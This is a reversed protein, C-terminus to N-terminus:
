TGFRKYHTTITENDPEVEAAHQATSKARAMDGLAGEVLSLAYYIRGSKVGIRILDKIFVRAELYKQLKILISVFNLLITDNNPWIETAIKALKLAQERDQGDFLKLSRLYIMISQEQVAPSPTRDLSALNPFIEIDTLLNAFNQVIDDRDPSMLHAKFFYPVAEDAKGSEKCLQVVELLVPLHDHRRDLFQGYVTILEENKGDRKLLAVLNWLCNENTCDAQFAKRAWELAIMRHDKAQAILSLIFLTSAQDIESEVAKRLLVEAEAIRGLRYLVTACQDIYSINLPALKVAQQSPILAKENDGTLEAIISKCYHIQAWEGSDPVSAEGLCENLLKDAAAVGEFKLLLALAHSLITPEGPYMEVAILAVGLASVQEVKSGDHSLQHHFRVQSETYHWWASFEREMKLTNAVGRTGAHVSSLSILDNERLFALTGELDLLFPGEVPKSELEHERMAKFYTADARVLDDLIYYGRYGLGRCLHVIRRGDPAFLGLHMASGQLGLLVNDERFLAAQEYAPLTEPFVVEWGDRLLSEELEQEGITRAITTNKRSLFIKRRGPMRPVAASQFIRRYSSTVYHHYVFAVEPVILEEVQCWDTIFLVQDKSLGFLSLFERQYNRIQREPSALFIWPLDAYDELCWLRASSELLFHGFHDFIIGGFVAKKIKLGVSNPINITQNQRIGCGGDSRPQAAASLFNGEADFAGGGLEELYNGKITPCLASFFVNRHRSVTLNKNSIEYDKNYKISSENFGVFRQMTTIRPLKLVRAM